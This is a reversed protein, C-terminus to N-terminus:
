INKFANIEEISNKIFCDLLSILIDFLRRSDDTGLDFGASLLYGIKTLTACLPFATEGLYNTRLIPIIPRFMNRTTPRFVRASFKKNSLITKYEEVGQITSDQPDGGVVDGHFYIKGYIGSNFPVVYEIQVRDKNVLKFGKIIADRQDFITVREKLEANKPTLWAYWFPIGGACVFIGGKEIYTSIKKFTPLTNLDCEPYEEGFPNIVAIYKDTLASISIYECEYGFKKLADFWDQPKYQTWPSKQTGCPIEDDANNVYGNLIAIKNLMFDDKSSLVRGRIIKSCFKYVGKAHELAELAKEEKFLDDPAIDADPIGYESLQRYVEISSGVEIFDFLQKRFKPPLSVSLVDFKDSVDHTKGIPAGLYRSAAKFSYEITSMSFRVSQPYNKRVYNEVAAPMSQTALDWFIEGSRMIKSRVM